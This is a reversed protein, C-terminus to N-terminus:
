LCMLYRHWTNVRRNIIIIESVLRVKVTELQAGELIVILRKEQKKIHSTVLHRPVPDYEFVNDKPTLKRKKGVM